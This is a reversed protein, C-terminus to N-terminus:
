RETEGAPLVPEDSPKEVRLFTVIPNYHPITQDLLRQIHNVYDEHDNGWGPVPDMEVEVLIFARTRKM